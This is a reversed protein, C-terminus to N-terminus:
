KNLHRLLNNFSRPYWATTLEHHCQAAM